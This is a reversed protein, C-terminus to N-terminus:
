RRAIPSDSSGLRHSYKELFANLDDPTGLGHMKDQHIEYIGIRKSIRILENYVPCVYFENNVRHGSRIMSLSASLYDQVTRFYYIGVTAHPSIPNKEAVQIVSGEDDVAAYSWKTETAQFTMILGDVSRLKAARLFDDVSCEVWQDSNAILLPLDLRVHDLALLTTCAAGETVAPVSVISCGPSLEKLQKELNFERLHQENCLFTFHAKFNKPTMNSIVWEIMPKGFVQTLPKPLRYGAEYFRQGLGAMPIIVEVDYAQNAVRQDRSEAYALKELHSEIKELTVESPSAVIMVHAGSQQASHIGAASDEVILTEHPSLGLKQIAQQYIRPSPKSEGVDEHSLKLDFYPDLEMKHLMLDLTERQSNTAVGLLYGSQRLHNLVRKIEDTPQGFEAISQRTYVQKMENVFSHLRLPLGRKQSLIQLKVKTPLGNYYALHEKEEIDFGFMALARNLAEYHWLAADVLVGDLDFLIGKIM